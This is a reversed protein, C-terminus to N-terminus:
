GFPMAYLRKGTAAYVANAVAPAIPPLGPEGVGTPAEDSDVIIVKVTPAADMRLIRYNHFNSEKVAGNELEINGYLAATLGFMIAGEMQGRVIDPNVVQGCDVACVVKHVKIGGNEISIQAAEAVYSSFSGHAAFGVYRGPENQWQQMAQGAVEIVQQLRLNGQTHQKRFEVPDTEAFEALEDILTEKAFATYSHGVSRWFTLPLGHDVTIHRIEKNAFDYDDILGEISAADISWGHFVSNAAGAILNTVGSPVRPLVGPLVVGLVSPTLNGGVRTAQWACIKGQEDIGAKIKMLSAPRYFGNQIDEERSWILKIAKNTAMATQTAETIHTLVGRRGFGGGLFTSNVRVKEKPLGAYRAVLGQAVGPFQTGSWLDAEGNEIRVVANLPELPAHALYPAWYEREVIKSAATFGQTIDGESYSDGKEDQLAQQYDSKIQQSSINALEPLNWEVTLAAVAKKAQWFSTAVVAVGSDIAVVDTVGVTGLIPVADFSKITGGAVACRKVMAYHMNPVEIDIGYEATGTSKAQGDIRAIEKGIYKFETKPKLMASEPLELASATEIFQAYPFAQDGAIVQADHTNLSSRLVSLDSAAADLILARTNAAVQRLPLFHVKMSTSGGTGQLNFDPNNYASHAGAFLVEIENLPYDLEEAILTTLGMMAGQGMEDRPFYFRVMNDPTLQLFANPTLAGEIDAVPLPPGDRTVMYGIVLGGGTIGGAKLFGRRTLNLGKM